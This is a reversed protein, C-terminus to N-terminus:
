ARTYAGKPVGAKAAEANEADVKEQALETRSKTAANGQAADTVAVAAQVHAATAKVTREVIADFRARLYDVSRGDVKFNPDDKLITAAIVEADTMPRENGDAKVTLKVDGLVKLASSELASRAAVLAPVDVAADTRAKEAQDARSKEADREGEAKDARAKESKATAEAADLRAKEEATMSMSDDSTPLVVDGNGDLRLRVESGARGWGAKGLGVHNGRINTQLADYFEGEPTIGPTHILDVEYGLSM